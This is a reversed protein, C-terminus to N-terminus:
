LKQYVREKADVPRFMKGAHSTLTETKGMVLYGGPNLGDYFAQFLNEQLDISFYIVVSRCM